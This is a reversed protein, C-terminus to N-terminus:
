GASPSGTKGQDKALTEYAPSVENAVDPLDDEVSRLRPMLFGIGTVLVTIMGTVVFLLGIGRGAGVGIMQGISEAFPGDTALLPEFVKDTLPGAIAYALPATSLAFIMRVAFVRGQVALPTKSQWIAQSCSNVLPMLFLIGFNALAVLVVSPRSGALM